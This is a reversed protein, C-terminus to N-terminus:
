LSIGIERLWFGPQEPLWEAARSVTYDGGLGMGCVGATIDNGATVTGDSWVRAIWDWEGQQMAAEHTPFFAPVAVPALPIVIYGVISKKFSM